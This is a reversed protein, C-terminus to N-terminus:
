EPGAALCREERRDVAALSSAVRIDNLIRTQMPTNLYAYVTESAWDGRCKIEEITAGCMALYTCGGRRLSHSTFEGAGLGARVAFVELMEQYARYTLPGSLGPGRPTRFAMSEARGPVELFHKQTWYVACLELNPCRAVPIELQRERYQITKTRKVRIVMGWDYFSFDARTLSSDSETVQAKRLLGRFSCLMAARWATHGANGTLGAFIRLLMYPLIPPARRPADGKERRIGKLTAAIVFDGYEIGKLGSKRLFYNLGSIYNVVSRYTLTRALWAAYMAVRESSCPFPARNDAFLQVFELYRRVQVSRTTISNVAYCRGEFM